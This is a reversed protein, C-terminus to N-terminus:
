VDTEISAPKMVETEEGNQHRDYAKSLQHKRFEKKKRKSTRDLHIQYVVGVAVMIGVVVCLATSFMWMAESARKNLPVRKVGYSTSTLNQNMSQNEIMCSVSSDKSINVTLHSTINYLNSDPLSTTLTRVSGEPPKETDNILWYIAPEPFGGTSHCWFAIEEGQAAEERELVPPSFSAATSLCVTCVAASQNGESIIFLRFYTNDEKPGVSPLLLSLNGTLAADASIGASDTSRRDWQGDEGWDSRLVVEDGRRWEISVNASASINPHLCPLSVPRGVIGLVCDPDLCACVTIFSLLLGPRCLALPM